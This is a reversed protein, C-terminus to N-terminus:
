FQLLAQKMVLVRGNREYEILIEGSAMITDILKIDEEPSTATHGNIKIIIDGARLGLLMLDRARSTVEYGKGPIHKLGYRTLTSVPNSKAKNVQNTVYREVSSKVKEDNNMSDQVKKINSRKINTVIDPLVNSNSTGSSGKTRLSKDEATKEDRSYKSRTSTTKREVRNFDSGLNAGREPAIYDSFNSKKDSPLELTEIDGNDRQFEVSEDNVAHLTAKEFVDDGIKFLSTTKGEAISAMGSKPNNSVMTAMLVFKLPTIKPELDPKIEEVVSEDQPEKYQGFVHVNAIHSAKTADSVLNNSKAAQKPLSIVSSYTVNPKVIIKWTLIALFYALMAIILIFSISIVRRVWPNQLNLAAM